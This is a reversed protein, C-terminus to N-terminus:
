SVAAQCGDWCSWASTQYYCLLVFTCVINTQFIQLKYYFLSQSMVINYLFTMYLQSFSNTCKSLFLSYIVKTCPSTQNREFTSHFIITVITVVARFYLPIFAVTAHNSSSITPFLHIFIDHLLIKIAPKRYQLSSFLM